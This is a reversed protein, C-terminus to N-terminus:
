TSDRMENGDPPEARGPRRWSAALLWGALLALGALVLVPWDGTQEYITRGTRLGVTALLVQRRGLDTRQRVDGRDDVVTSFGTPAAQVLDRGEEVAQVRDAAVEQAPVQSTAYSSTNTPVVLLEAGARVSSRGREAYFVEYSVMVGLPGAPTRLLGTGAGPIADLPVAALNAFHAFFGRYPVYEGFPVRHVKEFTGIVRGSPGWAVVLNRFATSSVTETVGAVVTTRLQRALEAMTAAPPTGALPGDLSIVDEPWLVLQPTRGDDRQDMVSTAALQATYVTASSVEQESFGRRGGGQVAAVSIRRVPTGGDPALAGAVGIVVVLLVATAGAATDAIVGPRTLWRSGSRHVARDDGARPTGTPHDATPHDATPHDATLWLVLEALGAGGLWVVATLLLPGGLRTAGLLPGGAQGLFVGGIPLGGFPWTMRVAELLTFAGAFAPLRGRVPPVLGAAVATSLAEVAMLVAAGYWNFARAWFLGPVYCGLGALWGALLRTRLRLGALRWYLVAAGVFALPWWGWPPLSLAVAVGSVVSPVAVHGWRRERWRM